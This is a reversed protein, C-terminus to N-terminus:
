EEGAGIRNRLLLDRLAAKDAAPMASIDVKGKVEVKQNNDIGTRWQRDHREILRLLARVDYKTKESILNGTKSDYTKETVGTVAIMKLTEHAQQRLKGVVADCELAFDADRELHDYVTQRSIGATAASPALEGSEGLASLFLSRVNPDELIYGRGGKGKFNAM